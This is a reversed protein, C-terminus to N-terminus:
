ENVSVSVFVYVGVYVRGEFVFFCICVFLCVCVHLCLCM